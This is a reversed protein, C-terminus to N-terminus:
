PDFILINHIISKMYLEIFLELVVFWTAVLLCIWEFAIGAVSKIKKHEGCAVNHESFKRLSKAKKSDTRDSM